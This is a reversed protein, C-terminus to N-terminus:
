ANEEMKIETRQVFIAYENLKADEFFVLYLSLCGNTDFGWGIENRRVSHLQIFDPNAVGEEKKLFVFSPKELYKQKTNLFCELLATNALSLSPIGDKCITSTIGTNPNSQRVRLDAIVSYTYKERLTTKAAFAKMLSQIAANYSSQLSKCLIEPFVGFKSHLTTSVHYDEPAENLELIDPENAKRGMARKNPNMNQEAARKRGQGSMNDTRSLATVPALYPAILTPTFLFDPKLQYLV